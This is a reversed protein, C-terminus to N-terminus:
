GKELRRENEWRSKGQREGPSTVGPTNIKGSDKKRGQEEHHWVPDNKRKQGKMLTHYKWKDIVSLTPKKRGGWGLRGRRIM